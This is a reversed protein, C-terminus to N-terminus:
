LRDGRQNLQAYGFVSQSLLDSIGSRIAALGKLSVELFIADRSRDSTTSFGSPDALFSRRFLRVQYCCSEYGIGFLAEQSEGEDLNYQWLGFATWNVNLPQVFSLHTQSVARQGITPDEERFRYGVNFLRQGDLYNVQVSYQSLQGDDSNMLADATAGFRENVRATLNGAVSSGRDTGIDEPRNTLAVRRDKLYLIQGASASLHEFGEDSLFRTTAGVTVQHSDDIRDGGSFRTDRFLQDYSFTTIATDFNPLDSQREFPAAVYFLRPELTQTWGDAFYRDFYLGLDVSATPVTISANDRGAATDNELLYSLHSLRLAPRVYGWAENIEYAVKPDLRLRQGNVELGSGDNIDRRFDAVEGSFSTQWGPRLSASRSLVLQPLRQYPKDIDRIAPDITQFAQVRALASWSGWRYGVEGVREQFSTITQALSTGLDTFFLNDSVYNIDTRASLGNAWSAQQQIRASKRDEGTKQDDQLISGQVMGSGLYESLYRYEGSMMLGRQDIYRPTVTADQQPAINLYIPQSFDFGGDSTTGFSPVLLGSTRENGVPFRFYPFYAVPVDSLSLTAGRVVGFGKAQNIELTRADFAWSVRDPACTTYRGGDIVLVGDDRRRIRDARGHANVASAVYFSDSIQGAQTNLNFTAEEGTLTLGPESIRINGEFRAFDRNQSLVGRDAEILRGGQEIRLNGSLSTEGAERAQLLDSFAALDALQPDVLTVGPGVPTVWAAGCTPDIVPRQEAPLEAIREASLWGLEARPATPPTNSWASLPAACAIALALPTPRGLPNLRM